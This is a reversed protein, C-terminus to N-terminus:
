AASEDKHLAAKRLRAAVDDVTGVGNVRRVKGARSYFDILPRTQGEYVDFRSGIVEPTDDTRGLDKARKLLRRMIEDREVDLVIVADVRRGLEKLLGDLSEAQAATRPFGDFVVPTSRGIERLRERVMDVTIDDPVYQGRDLIGKVRRGLDTGRKIHDRFLEGTSLHVWGLSDVLAKAQTGKGSGPPGMFVLDGMTM